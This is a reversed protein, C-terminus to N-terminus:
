RRFIVEDVFRRYRANMTDIDPGFFAKFLATGPNTAGPEGLGAAQVYTQVQGRAVADLLKDFRAAHAGDDGFRLFLMLAWVQGYYGLVRRSREHMVDGAHIRLLESLPRLEGRIRAEALANRRPPNHWPDFREIGRPGWRQGECWVALGESLWAPANRDACHWLFQHLGEHAVIPFTVAPAVYEVVCVGREMYGGNRIRMLLGAKRPAFRRTFHAWTERRAFVYVPLPADPERAAPLLTRDYEYARELSGALTEIRGRDTLTTYIQYHATRVRYGAVRGYRWPQLVVPPRHAHGEVGGRAACGALSLGVLMLSALAAPRFRTRTNINM